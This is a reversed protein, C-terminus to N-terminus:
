KWFEWWRKAIRAVCICEGPYEASPPARHVARVKYDM